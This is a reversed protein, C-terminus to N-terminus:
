EWQGEVPELRYRGMGMSAGKGVHLWQGAWLLSWLEPCPRLLLTGVLGDMDIHRQQRSSYRSWRFWALERESFELADAREALAKYDWDLGGDGHHCDLLSYRRLLATVFPRLTFEAPGLVRNRVRLRLPTEIRLRVPFRPQPPEWSGAPGQLPEWAELVLKGRGRGLGFAAMRQAAQVLYPVAERARGFLSLELRLRDGVACAGGLPAMVPVMPHPADSYGALLGCDQRAPTEYLRAYWCSGRLMCSRCAMGPCVCVTRRLAQGLAGRWTSGAYPPLAVPDLARFTLSLRVIPLPGGVHRYDPQTM